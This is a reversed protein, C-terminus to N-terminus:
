TAVRTKPCAGQECLGYIADKDVVGEKDPELVDFFITHLVRRAARRTDAEAVSDEGEWADFMTTKPREAASTLRTIKSQYGSAGQGKESSIHGALTGAVRTKFSDTRVVPM